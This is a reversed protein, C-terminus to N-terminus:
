FSSPFTSLRRCAGFLRYFWCIAAFTQNNKYNPLTKNKTLIAKSIEAIKRYFKYL